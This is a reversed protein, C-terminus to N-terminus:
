PLPQRECREYGQNEQHTDDLGPEELGGRQELKGAIGSNEEDHRAADREHDHETTNIERDLRHGREGADDYRQGDAAEAIAREDKSDDDSHQRPEKEPECM